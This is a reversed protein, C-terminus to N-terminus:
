PRGCNCIRKPYRIINIRSAVHRKGCVCKVIWMSHHHKDVHSLSIIKYKGIRKGTLDNKHRKNLSQEKHTAWRCNEKCYNGNNDIRDISKGIPAEGMDKYFTEFSNWEDCVGIGRGGYYKYHLHNKDNCRSRMQIWIRHTRTKTMGHTTGGKNACGCSMPYKTKRGLIGSSTVYIKGCNCGVKWMAQGDDRTHSYRIIRIHGIRKGTLDLRKSV